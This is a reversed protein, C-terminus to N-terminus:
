SRRVSTKECTRRWGIANKVRAWVPDSTLRRLESTMPACAANVDTSELTTLLATDRTRMTAAINVRDHCSVRPASSRTGNKRMGARTMPLRSAPSEVRWIFRLASMPLRIVSRNLTAPARSTLSNPLGRRSSRSYESRAALTRSAPILIAIFRVTNM